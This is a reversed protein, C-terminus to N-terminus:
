LLSLSYASSLSDWVPIAGVGVSGSFVEFLKVFQKSYDHQIGFQKIPEILKGFLITNALCFCHIQWVFITQWVFIINALCFLHKGFLTLIQWVIQTKGFLKDFLKANLM